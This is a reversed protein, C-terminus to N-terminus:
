VIKFSFYVSSSATTFYLTFVTIKINSSQHHTLSVPMSAKAQARIGSRRRTSYANRICVDWLTVSSPITQGGLETVAESM